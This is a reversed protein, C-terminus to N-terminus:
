TICHFKLTWLCIVAFEDSVTAYAPERPIWLGNWVSVSLVHKGVFVSAPQNNGFGDTGLLQGAIVLGAGVPHRGGLRVLAAPPDELDVSLSEGNHGAAVVGAGFEVQVGHGGHGFGHDPNGHYFPHRYYRYYSGDFDNAFRCAWAPGLGLRAM